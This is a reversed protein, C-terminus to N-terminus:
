ARQGAGTRPVGPVQVGDECCGLKDSRVTESLRSVRFPPAANGGRGSPRPKWAAIEIIQAKRDIQRSDAADPGPSRRTGSKCPKDVIRDAPIRADEFIVTRTPSGKIGLKKELAGFSVGPDSKEVVFASMGHAGHDPDTVAMVTHSEPVGANTIWAKAGNLM